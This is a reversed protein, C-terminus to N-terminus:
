KLRLVGLSVAFALFLFHLSMFSLYMISPGTQVRPCPGESPPIRRAAILRTHLARSMHRRPLFFFFLCNQISILPSSQKLPPDSDILRKDRQGGTDCCSPCFSTTPPRLFRCRQQQDRALSLAFVFRDAHPFFM